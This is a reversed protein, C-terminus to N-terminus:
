YSYQADIRQIKQSDLNGMSIISREAMNSFNTAAVHLTAM